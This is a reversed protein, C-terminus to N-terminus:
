ASRVSPYQNLRLWYADLATVMRALDDFRVPKLLYSNVGLDYARDVDQSEKSSTLVVVPIRKLVPQQRMWELVELGSRRPLKLDLLILSPLPYETRDCYKDNGSLYGIAEEGDKVIRIPNIMNARRFARQVLLIDNSDDEVLLIGYESLDM